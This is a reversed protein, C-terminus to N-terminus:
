KMASIDAIADDISSSAFKADSVLSALVSAHVDEVIRSM